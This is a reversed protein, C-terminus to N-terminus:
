STSFYEKFTTNYSYPVSITFLGSKVSAYGKIVIPLDKTQAASSILNVINGLLVGPSFVVNLPIDNEGEAPVVFSQEQIFYGLNVNNIIVQGFLKKVTAEIKSKNYLRIKVVLDVKDKTIGNVKIGTLQTSYQQLLEAQKKYFRYVAYGAGGLLGAIILIKKM